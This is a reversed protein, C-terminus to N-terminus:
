LIYQSQSSVSHMALAIGTAALDENFALNEGYKSYPRDELTDYSALWLTDAWEQAYLSLEPNETM